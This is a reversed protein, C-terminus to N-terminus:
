TAARVFPQILPFHCRVQHGIGALPPADRRCEAKTFVCRDAFACGGAVSGPRPPLGPITPMRRNGGVGGSPRAALLAATYPHAPRIFVDSVEGEEMVQGAYMVLVRGGLAAVVGLDHTVTILALKRGVQLGKLLGVVQAQVTVDLATTPEDAILLDPQGALAAAIAVRQRQGGSLEHPYLDLRSEPDPLGVQALLERSQHRVEGTGLEGHRRLLEGLQTGIRLHPTLCGMADQPIYGIRHGLLRHRAVESDLAQGAFLCQGGSVRGNSALLGLAGLLLQSKGSGSEGVIALSDGAALALSAGRVADFAGEPTNFRVLLERIEFLTM